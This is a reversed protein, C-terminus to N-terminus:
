KCGSFQFPQVTSLTSVSTAFNRVPRPPHAM